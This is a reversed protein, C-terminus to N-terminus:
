EYYMIKVQKHTQWTGGMNILTKYGVIKNEQNYAYEYKFRSGEFLRVSSAPLNQSIIEPLYSVLKLEEKYFKALLNEGSNYQFDEEEYGGALSRDTKNSINGQKWIYNILQLTSLRGGKNSIRAYKILKGETDYGYEDSLLETSLTETISVLKSDEYKYVKESQTKTGDAAKKEIAVSLMKGDTDRKFTEISSTKALSDSVKSGVIQKTVEDYVWETTSKNGVADFVIIAQTKGKLLANGSPNEKSKDTLLDTETQSKCALLLSLVSICLFMNKNM